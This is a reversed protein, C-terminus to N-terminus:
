WGAKVSLALRVKKCGSVTDPLPDVGLRTMIAHWNAIDNTNTGYSTNFQEVMGDRFAARANKTRKSKKGWGKFVIFRQFERTASATSNYDFEEYQAFFAALPEM